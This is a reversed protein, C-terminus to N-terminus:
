FFFKINYKVLTIIPKKEYICYLQIKYIQINNNFVLIINNRYAQPYTINNIHM